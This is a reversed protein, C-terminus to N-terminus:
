RLGLIVLLLLWFRLSSNGIFSEVCRNNAVLKILTFNLTMKSLYRFFLFMYRNLIYVQIDKLLIHTERFRKSKCLTGRHIYGDGRIM